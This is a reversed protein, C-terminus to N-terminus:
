VGPTALTHSASARRGCSAQDSVMFPLATAITVSPLATSPSPFRPGVAANGTISPLAAIKRVNAPSDAKGSHRFVAEMSSSTLAVTAIAGPKPPM